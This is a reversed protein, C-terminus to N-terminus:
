PAIEPHTPPRVSEVIIRKISVSSEIGVSSGRVLAGYAADGVVVLDGTSTKLMQISNGDTSTRGHIAADYPLRVAGLSSPNTGFSVKSSNLAVHTSDLGISSGRILAGYAADGLVVLDGTSTKLLQITNGNTSTRGHIPADYGLRVAGASSPNSGFTVASSVLDVKSSAVSVSSGSAFAIGGGTSTGLTLIGSPGKARISMAASADDSAPQVIAGTSGGTLHVGHSSEVNSVVDGQFHVFGQVNSSRFYM